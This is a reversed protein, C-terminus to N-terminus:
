AKKRLIRRLDSWESRVAELARSEMSRYLQLVQRGRPTLVAGGREAGGRSKVVLPEPFAENMVRVLKWARMYSMGLNEAARRISRHRRIQDLLDAKGPGFVIVGDERVM